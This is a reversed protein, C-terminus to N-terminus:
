LLDSYFDFWTTFVSPSLNNLSKSVFSINGLYIKDQFKIISMKIFLLSTYLNRPQFNIITITKKQLIKIRQITSCNHAWVLCYYSLYSDFITFYISILIELSVYKEHQFFLM